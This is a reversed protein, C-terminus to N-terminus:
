GVRQTEVWRVAHRVVATSDKLDLKEKIHGRHVDVTKSSLGLQQAIERTSKGEGILKFVEFERDTLKEIPSSSGRPKRGSMAELINASIQTSVYIGGSLVQRIAALLAEGGAEKMIYGRGGARLVREAYLTEDHMSVVLIALKPKLALLDKIFEIGSRGPMTIDSLVLDVPNKSVWQLATAPDGAEGCVCLDPQKDILQGLGARMFPHDDVVLVRQRGGPHPSAPALPTTPAPPPLKSTPM